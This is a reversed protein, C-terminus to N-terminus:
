TKETHTKKGGGVCMNVSECVYMVNFVYKYM